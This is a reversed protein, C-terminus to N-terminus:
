EEEGSAVAALEPTARKGGIYRERRAIQEELAQSARLANSRSFAGVIRRSGSKEVVPLLAYDGAVLRALADVMPEDPTAVVPDAKAIASLPQTLKSEDGAADLLDGRSVIGVLEGADDMVPFTWQTRPWLVVAGAEDSGQSLIDSGGGDRSAAHSGNKSGVGNAGNAGNSGNASSASASSVGVAAPTAPAGALLRLTDALTMSASLAAVPASMVARVALTALQNPELDQTIKLGRRVLRETMVSESMLARSTLDAVMCGIMLPVIAHANGTLEFAFLFSTLPARAASAFLASMSVVGCMSPSLGIGPFVGNLARGYGVGIGAGVMLMPALLGGSTGAGLSFVLAVAKGIALLAVTPNSYVGDLINTIVTYGMGLVRPEIMAVIGLVVAGIAPKVLLTIPLHDFYEEIWNLSKSMIVAAVGVIVGLPVLWFLNAPSGLTVPVQVNFMVKSGLLFTRCAAAVGSAIIVPVLSRARFEFLLLELALAVAAMPTNFIGVMGAAAGCALLIRRENSTLHFAQGILSGIAGGTQIIPGEAGFPGGSGVAFAASIPKFIAVKLNIRSEKALVAEMAEPIGHGRIRDTGYRAMVGVVLAGAVPILLAKIGLGSTPPYVPTQLMLKGYFAFGTIINILHYLLWACLAGIVGMPVAALSFIITQRVDGRRM